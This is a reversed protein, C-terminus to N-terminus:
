NRLRINAFFASSDTTITENQEKQKLSKIEAVAVVYESLTFFQEMWWLNAVIELHQLYEKVDLKAALSSDWLPKPPFTDFPTYNSNGM